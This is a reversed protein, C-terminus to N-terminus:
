PHKVTSKCNGVLERSHLLVTV